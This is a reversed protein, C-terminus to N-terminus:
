AAMSKGSLVNEPRMGRVAENRMKDTLSKGEIERQHDWMRAQQERLTDAVHRPIKYAHGHYYPAGNIAIHTAFEPLDMLVEVIEDKVADHTTLGEETKLRQKEKELFSKLAAKRREEEVAARAEAKAKRQDEVSLIPHNPDIGDEIENDEAGIADLLSEDEADEGLLDAATPERDKAPM